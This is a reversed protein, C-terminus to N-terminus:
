HQLRGSNCLIEISGDSHCLLRHPGSKHFTRLFVCLKLALQIPEVYLGELVIKLDNRKWHQLLWGNLVIIEVETCSQQMETYHLCFSQLFILSFWRRHQSPESAYIKGSNENPIEPWLPMIANETGKQAVNVLISMVGRGFPNPRRISGRSSDKLRQAELAAVVLEEFSNNRGRHLTTANRSSGYCLFFM